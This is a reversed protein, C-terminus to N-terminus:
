SSPRGERRSATALLASFRPDGALAAFAPVGALCRSCFFGQAVAREAEALARERDGAAALLEAVRFTQEGDTAALRSRQLALQGLLLRADEARGELIAVLAEALRAFPDSPRERFAPALEQAAAQARGDRWYAYGRYFRALPTSGSPLLALFRAPDGLYLLANPTWGERGFFTADRRAVEEILAQARELRGAYTAAYAALFAIQPSAGIRPAALEWAKEAEGTETLVAIKLALAQTSAPALELARDAARLAEPYATGSEGCSSVLNYKAWGLQEWAEAFTPALEIARELDAIAQHAVCSGGALAKQAQAYLRFAEPPVAAVGSAPSAPSAQLNAWRLALAMALVLLLLSWLLARPRAPPATAQAPETPGIQRPEGAVSATAAPSPVLTRGPTDPAADALPPIPAIPAVPAVPAILRYGRRAVTQIYRPAKPDDGFARRLESIARTVVADVVFKGEWVTALLEEPAVTEGPRAALCLLVELIKPELAVPGQPGVVVNLGPDALFEGIQLPQRPTPSPSPSM